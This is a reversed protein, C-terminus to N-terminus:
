LTQILKCYSPKPLYNDDYLLPYDQRNYFSRIWSNKDSIGWFTIGYQYPKPINNYNVVVSGLLNAQENLLTESLEIDKGLPNVSIDLESVHIKYKDAVIEEFANAIQSPAPYNTSIHMQIGIGDIKVGRNRLNNLLALVSNRKTPNSELNFDNYFLLANPDAERAYIFAKEIYGIGIKQKWISNRLTGDENFAENVVDWATVKNKYHTIITQIHVKMLQEWDSISGQYDLIWQPLQQHWILTHGHLRKNNNQCFSLLSDAEAWNFLLPEPHIYQAKFINEPTISNFQKIAISKYLPNNELEVFDIATGIPYSSLASLAIRDDCKAIEEKKCGLYFTLLVFLSIRKM